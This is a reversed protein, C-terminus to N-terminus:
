LSLSSSRSSASRAASARRTTRLQTPAHAASDFRACSVGARSMFRPADNAFESAHRTRMERPINRIPKVQVSARQRQDHNRAVAQCSRRRQPTSVSAGPKRRGHDHAEGSDTLPRPSDHPNPPQGPPETSFAAIVRRGRAARAVWRGWRDGPGTRRGERRVRRYRERAANYEAGGLAQAHASRGTPFCKATEATPQWGV